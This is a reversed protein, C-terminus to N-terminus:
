RSPRAALWEDFTPGVLVAGAAPLLIGDRVADGIPGATVQVPDGEHRAFATSMAALHEVHPGAVEVVEVDRQGSAVDVLVEVMADVAVPRIVLDPVTTTDDARGWGIAQGSIDHFQASRVVSAGPSHQRTAQEQVFKARYYGDYGTGPDSEAEAVRDVGVISLVVTRNVGVNAAAQGLNTAVTTFFQTSSQEELNPSQIVNIIAEAGALADEVGDGSLLDVKSEKSIGTVEHDRSQAHAVLRIGVLGTSGIVALRM